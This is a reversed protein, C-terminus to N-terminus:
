TSSSRPLLPRAMRCRHREQTLVAVREEIVGCSIGNRFPARTWNILYFWRRSSLEMTATAPKRWTAPLRLFWAPRTSRRVHNVDAENPYQLHAPRICRMAADGGASDQ